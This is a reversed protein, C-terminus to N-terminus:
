DVTKQVGWQEVIKGGSLRFVDYYMAPKEGARSEAQIVV